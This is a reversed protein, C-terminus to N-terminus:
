SASTASSRPPHYHLAPSHPETLPKGSPKVTFARSEPVPRAHFVLRERRLEKLEEEQRQRAEEEMQKKYEEERVRREREAADFAAREAARRDSALEPAAFRTLPKSSPRVHFSRAAGNDHSNADHVVPMPLAKFQGQAQLREEEERKKAELRELARQHYQEGPLAFPVVETLPKSSGEIKPPAAVLRIPNAKFERQKKRQEEEEALRRRLNEQYQRHLRISKLDPTEPVTPGRPAAPSPRSTERARLRQQEREKRRRELDAIAAAAKETASQRSAVRSSTTLKPSVPQTLPPKEVKPLPLARPELVGRSVPQAHFKKSLEIEDENAVEIARRHSQARKSTLLQPTMAQAALLM